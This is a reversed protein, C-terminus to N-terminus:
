LGLIINRFELKSSPTYHNQFWDILMEFRFAADDDGEEELAEHADKLFQVLQMLPIKDDANLAASHTKGPRQTM